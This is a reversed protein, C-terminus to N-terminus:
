PRKFQSLYGDLAAELHGQLTALYEEHKEPPLGFGCLIEATRQKRQEDTLAPASTHRRPSLATPPITTPDTPM